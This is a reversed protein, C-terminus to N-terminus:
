HLNPSLFSWLEFPSPSLTSTTVQRSRARDSHGIVLREKIKTVQSLGGGGGARVMLTTLFTWIPSFCTSHQSWHRSGRNVTNTITQIKWLHGVCGRELLATQKLCLLGHWAICGRELLATQKLCLLGHWAACGRELLATQTLLCDFLSRSSPFLGLSTLPFDTPLNANVWRESERLGAQRLYM